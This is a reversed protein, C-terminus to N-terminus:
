DSRAYGAMSYGTLKGKKIAKWIKPDLIRTVLVWSGEKVPKKEITFDVPAIYNELVRVRVNSGKHMVKFTQVEEMFQYAAKRIEEANATDGQTDEEDPEYVIGYVIREEKKSGKLLPILSLEKEFTPKGLKSSSEVKPMEIKEVKCVPRLVEDFLPICKGSFDTTYVFTCAKDFQQGLMDAITKELAEDPEDVDSKIIVEIEEDSAFDVKLFVVAAETLIPKLQAIDIGVKKIEMAKAFAQRDIPETSGELSRGRMVKLLMRYKTLMDNRNLSGVVVDENKEFHKNWLGMFRLRLMHLERDKAKVLQEQSLAEVRLKIRNFMTSGESLNLKLKEKTGTPGLAERIQTVRKFDANFVYLVKKDQVFGLRKWFGIADYTSELAIGWKSKYAVEVASRVLEAGTGKPAALTGTHSIFIVESVEDYHFSIAGVIQKDVLALTRASDYGLVANEMEGFNRTTLKKPYDERLQQSIGMAQKQLMVGIAYEQLAVAKEPSDISEIKNDAKTYM